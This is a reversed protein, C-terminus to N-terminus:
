QETSSTNLSVANAKNLGSCTTICPMLVHGQLRSGHLALAVGQGWQHVCRRPSPSPIMLVTRVKLAGAFNQAGPTRHAASQSATSLPMAKAPQGESRREKTQQQARVMRTEGRLPREEEKQHTTGFTHGGAGRGWDRSALLPKRQPLTAPDWAVCM